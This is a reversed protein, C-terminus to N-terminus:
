RRLMARLIHGMACEVREWGKPSRLDMGGYFRTRLSRISLWNVSAALIAVLATLDVSAPPDTEMLEFFELATRERGMELARTLPTREVGEWALVQLTQPRDRLARGLRIFFETMLDEPAMARLKAEDDAILEGAQPWFGPDSGLARMLGTLGGYYKFLLGRRVGAADCVAQHSIKEFGQGALVEGAAMILQRRALDKDHLPIIKRHGM